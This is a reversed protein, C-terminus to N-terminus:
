TTLYLYKVFTFKIRTISENFLAIRYFFFLRSGSIQQNQVTTLLIRISSRHTPRIPQGIIIIAEPLQGLAFKLFRNFENLCTPWVM